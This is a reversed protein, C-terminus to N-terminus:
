PWDPEEDFLDLKRIREGRVTATCTARAQASGGAVARSILGTAHADATEDPACQPWLGFPETAARLTRLGSDFTLSWSAVLATEPSSGELRVRLRMGPAHFVLWLDRGAARSVEADGLASEIERARMGLARGLISWDASTERM